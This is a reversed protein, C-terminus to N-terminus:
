LQLYGAARLRGELTVSGAVIGNGIPRGPREGAGVNVGKVVFFFGGGLQSPRYEDFLESGRVSKVVHKQLEDFAYVGTPLTGARAPPEGRIPLLFIPLM